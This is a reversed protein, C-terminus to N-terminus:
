VRYTRESPTEDGYVESFLRHAEAAIEKIDFYYHLVHRFFPKDRNMKLKYYDKSHFLFSFFNSILNSKRLKTTVIHKM